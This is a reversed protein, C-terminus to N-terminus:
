ATVSPQAAAPQPRSESQASTIPAVPAVAARPQTPAAASGVPATAARPPTPPQAVPPAEAIPPPAAERDVGTRASDCASRRSSRLYLGIVIALLLFPLALVLAGAPGTIDVGM